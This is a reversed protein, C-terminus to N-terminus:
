HHQVEEDFVKHLHRFVERICGACLSRGMSKIHKSGRASKETGYASVTLNIFGKTSNKGCRPCTGRSTSTTRLDELDDKPKTKKKRTATTTSM